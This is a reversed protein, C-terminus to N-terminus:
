RRSGSRVAPLAYQAQRPDWLCSFSIYDGYERHVGTIRPYKGYRECHAVALDRSRAEAAPSWPIIGGTDNGKITTEIGRGQFFIEWGWEAAQSSTIAPAM